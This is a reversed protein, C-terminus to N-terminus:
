KTMIISKANVGVLINLKKTLDTIETKTGEVIVSIAGTCGQLCHREISIGLRALVLHGYTTLLSNVKSINKHRNKVIISITTIYPKTPM